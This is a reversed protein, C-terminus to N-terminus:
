PQCEPGRIRRALQCLLGPRHDTPLEFRLVTAGEGLRQGDASTVQANAFGGGEPIRYLILWLHYQGRAADVPILVEHYDAIVQGAVLRGFPQMGLVPAAMDTRWVEGAPGILRLAIGYDSAPAKHVRWVLSIPLVIGPELRPMGLPWTYGVLEVQDNFLFGLPVLAEPLQTPVVPSLHVLPGTATPESWDAAGSLTRAVYLARNETAARTASAALREMGNVIVCDPCVGDVQQAYWLPTVQEWDGVIISGPPVLRLAAALRDAQGGAKLDQRWIDLPRAVYQESWRRCWEEPLRYVVLGLVAGIVVANILGFSHPFFRRSRRQILMLWAALGEGILIAACVYSPIFFVFRRPHDYNQALYVHLLFSSLVLALWGRRAPQWRWYGVLGSIALLLLGYNALLITIFYDVEQREPLFDIDYLYGIDMMFIIFDYLNHIPSHFPPLKRWSAWPVYLYFLLPSLFALVAILGYRPRALLPRGKLLLLATLPLLFVVFTRHHSLGLGTALALWILSPGDPRDYFRWARWLFLSTLFGNLAYKDGLVAQGWYVCSLALAMASVGAAMTSGTAGQVTLFVLGVGLAAVFASLVNTRWAISGWPVLHIWGKDLLTQLPYGTPHALSLRYPVFQLEGADGGLVGPALTTFYLSFTAVFLALAIAAIKRNLM